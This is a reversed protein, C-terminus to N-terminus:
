QQQNYTNSSGPQNPDQYQYNYQNQYEQGLYQNPIFNQPDQAFNPYQDSNQSSGQVPHTSMLDRHIENYKFQDMSQNFNQTMKYDLDRFQSSVDCYQPYSPNQYQSQYANQTSTGTQYHTQYPYQQSQVHGQQYAYQQQTQVEPQSFAQKQVQQTSSVARTQVQVTQLPVPQQAEQMSIDLQSHTPQPSVKEHVSQTSTGAEEQTPTKKQNEQNKSAKSSDNSAILYDYLEKLIPDIEQNQQQATQQVQELIQIDSVQASLQQKKSTAKKGKYYAYLSEINDDEDDSDPPDTNYMDRLEQSLHMYLELFFAHVSKCDDVGVIASLASDRGLGACRRHDESPVEWSRIRELVLHAHRSAM